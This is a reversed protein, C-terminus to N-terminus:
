NELRELFKGHFVMAWPHGHVSLVLGLHWKTFYRAVGFKATTSGEGSNFYVVNIRFHYRAEATRAM